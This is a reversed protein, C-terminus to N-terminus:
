TSISVIQRLHGLVSVQDAGAIEVHEILILLCASPKKVVSM